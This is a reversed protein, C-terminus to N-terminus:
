SAVKFPHAETNFVFEDLSLLSPESFILYFYKLTEALWFSEMHDSHAPSPVTVDHLEANAYETRTLRDVARFMDWAADQFTRDGTVRYLIFLSEIAEPRLRYRGDGIATFGPQLRSIPDDDDHDDSEDAGGDPRRHERIANTWHSWNWPCPKLDPCPVMYFIEPMIGSPMARYAWLCGNTLKRGLEVHEPVDFIRGGIAFMGGAYCSLHEGRPNLEPGTVGDEVRVIGTILIDEGKPTMPRFILHRLATSMAGQYLDQYVPLAGQLLVDQKPFYEYVSDSTGGLSFISTKNLMQTRTNVWIPWMGPLKTSYQQQAFLDTIRQVLDYWKADNTVQSLHTFELSFSGLDAVYNNEEPLQQGGRAAETLNWHLVPMHNPTDFAHYLMDGLQVAKELLVKEHSLDYAGLLGGLYRITTEFLNVKEDPSTSFDITAVAKVADRFEEKMDMIFLTDLADVLTAAWGGFTNRSSGSVPTLEDKLWAREKYSRWCRVFSEKVKQRRALRGDRRVTSEPQFEHQIRPYPEKRTTPLPTPATIPYQLAIDAWDYRGHTYHVHNVESPRPANFNGPGSYWRVGAIVFLILCVVLAATFVQWKPNPKSSM